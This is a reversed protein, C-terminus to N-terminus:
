SVDLYLIMFCAVSHRPTNTYLAVHRKVKLAIKLCGENSVELM